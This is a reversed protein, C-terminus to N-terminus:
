LATALLVKNISSRASAHLLHKSDVSSVNLAIYTVIV